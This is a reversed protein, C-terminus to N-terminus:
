KERVATTRYDWNVVDLKQIADVICDVLAHTMKKGKEATGKTADGTNATNTLESFDWKIEIKEPLSDPVVCHAQDKECWQPFLHYAISTEGEGAHGLGNWVEFTDPPLLEGATVWWQPLSAIRAEPYKEKIKRSAIEMPAINGDHGNMLFIRTIGNRLVSEMIDYIVQTVTDYGLTLTFPFSDYHGSYGVNVPPLVLMGEVRDAVLCSLQYSVLTDTGEALHMGHAECSGIALIVKDYNGNLVQNATLKLLEHNAM